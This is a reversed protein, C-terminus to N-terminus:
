AKRKATIKLEPVAIQEVGPINIGVAWREECARQTLRRHLLDFQGTAAIHAQLVGWDRCAPVLKVGFAARALAGAVETVGSGEVLVRLMDERRAIEEKVLAVSAELEKVKERFSFIADVLEAAQKMRDDSM